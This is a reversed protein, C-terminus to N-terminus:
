KTKNWKTKNNNYKNIKSQKTKNIIYIYYLFPTVKINLFSKPYYGGLFVKDLRSLKAAKNLIDRPNYRDM